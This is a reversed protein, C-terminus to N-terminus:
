VAAKARVAVAVVREGGTAAAEKKEAMADAVAWVAEVGEAAALGEM